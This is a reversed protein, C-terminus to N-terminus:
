EELREAAEIRARDYNAQSFCISPPANPDAVLRAWNPMLEALQEVRNCADGYADIGSSTELKCAAAIVPQWLNLLERLKKIKM